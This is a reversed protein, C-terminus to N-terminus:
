SWGFNGIFFNVHYIGHSNNLRHLPTLAAGRANVKEDEPLNNLFDTLPKSYDALSTIKNTDTLEIGSGTLDLATAVLGSEELLAITKYWCWAGFGEGHILVIKKTKLSELFEPLQMLHMQVTVFNCM